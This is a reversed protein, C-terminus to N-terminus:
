ARLATPRKGTIPNARRLRKAMAVVEPHKEAHPKRGTWRPPALWNACGRFSQASLQMASVSMLRRDARAVRLSDMWEGGHLSTGPRRAVECDRRSAADSRESWDGRRHKSPRPTNANRGTRRIVRRSKGEKSKTARWTNTRAITTAIMTEFQVLRMTVRGRDRTGPTTVAFTKAPAVSQTRKKACGDNVPLMAGDTIAALAINQQAM